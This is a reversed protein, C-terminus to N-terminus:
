APEGDDAAARLAEEFLAVHAETLPLPVQAYAWFETLLERPVDPRAAHSPSSELLSAVGKPLCQLLFPFRERLRAAADIVFAGDTYRAVVFDGEHGELSPGSVLEAFTGELVVLDRGGRLPLEEIVPAGEGLTVLTASKTTTAEAASYKLLSGAYRIAENTGVRQARHLHGLAVYDYGALSAPSVLGATGVALPRESEPSDHGGVTFLHAVLLRPLSAGARDVKRAPVGALAARVASDHDRISDDGLALRALEPELFPLTVIEAGEGGHELAIPALRDEFRTRLYVRRSALFRAGFGLREPGDHNGSIAIVARGQKVAIEELFGDFAEIADTPPIARDYIDGAIIVAAVDHEAAIEVLHALAIKQDALLSFGGLQKGLHWDATHLVKM